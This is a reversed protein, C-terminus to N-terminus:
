VTRAMNSDATSCVLLHLGIALANGRAVRSGVRVEELGANLHLSPSPGARDVEIGCPTGFAIDPGDGRGCTGVAGVRQM